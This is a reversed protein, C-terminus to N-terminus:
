PKQIHIVKPLEPLGLQKRLWPQMQCLYDSLTEGNENWCLYSTDGLTIKSVGTLRFQFVPRVGLYELKLQVSEFSDCVIEHIEPKHIEKEIFIHDGEIPEIFYKNVELAYDYTLHPSLSYVTNYDFEGNAAGTCYRWKYVKLVFGENWQPAYPAIAEEILAEIEANIEAAIEHNQATLRRNLEAEAEKQLRADERRKKEEQYKQWDKEWGAYIILIAEELTYQKRDLEYPDNQDWQNSHEVLVPEEISWSQYQLNYTIKIWCDAEPSSNLPIKAHPTVYSPQNRYDVYTNIRWGYAQLDEFGYQIGIGELFEENAAAALIMKFEEVALFKLKKLREAEAEKKRKQEAEIRNRLANARDRLEQPFINMTNQKSLKKIARHSYSCQLM